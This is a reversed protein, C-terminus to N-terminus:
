FQSILVMMAPEIDFFKLPPINNDQNKKELMVNANKLHPTVPAVNGAQVAVLHALTGVQVQVFLQCVLQSM